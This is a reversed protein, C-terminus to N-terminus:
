QPRRVSGRGVLSAFDPLVGPAGASMVAWFVLVFVVFPGSAVLSKTKLKLIGSIASAIAAGSLGVLCAVVATQIPQLEPRGFVIVISLLQGGIGWLFLNPATAASAFKGGSGRKRSSPTPPPSSPMAQGKNNWRFM